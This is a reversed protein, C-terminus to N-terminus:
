TKKNALKLVSQLLVNSTQELDEDLTLEEECHSLGGVSPAFIMATEAIDNMFKADHGAGSDITQYSYNLEKTCTEIVELVEKSFFTGNINWTEEITIDVQRKTAIDNIKQHIISLAERRQKDNIDRADFTFNVKGAFINYVSPNVDFVGVTTSLNEYNDTIADIALVMESAAVLADRRNEVPHAAHSAQGKVEVNFRTMGKVGRVLGIDKKSQELIPGQEVHLELFYGVNQLRNKEQGKYGITELAQEYTIGLEDQLSYAFEKTYNKTVVGSGVLPPTFREGEENTFNVLEITRETSINNENLVRIIELGALVGLVGDFRGGNPQTDLHSGVMVIPLDKQKGERRGYINGLDDVRIELDEEQMWDVFIDRIKKDEKTLALRHLGGNETAGVKSSKEIGSKLRSFNIRYKNYDM